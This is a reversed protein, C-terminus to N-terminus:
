RKKRRKEEKSIREGLVSRRRLIQHYHLAFRHAEDRVYQLIQLGPNTRPLRVPKSRGPVYIEEARKALSIVSVGDIGLAELSALAAGLQGPGGDILM